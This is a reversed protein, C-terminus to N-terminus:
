GGPPPDVPPDVPPPACVSYTRTSAALVSYDGTFTVSYTVTGDGNDTVVAAALNRSVIVDGPVPATVCAASPYSVRVINPASGASPTLGVTDGCYNANFSLCNRVQPQPAQDASLAFSQSWGSGNTYWTTFGAPAAPSPPTVLDYVDVDGQQTPTTAIAYTLTGGPAGTAGWTIVEQPASLAAGFGAAGCVAVKYQQYQTLGGIVNTTSTVVGAGVLKAEGAPTMTCSPTGSLWAGWVQSVPKASFNANLVAGTLTAQEASATATGAADYRPRGAVQVATSLQEGDSGGTTPPQFRSVPVLQVTRPGVDLQIGFVTTAGSRAVYQGTNLVRFGATDAASAVSVEVAGKVDSTISADFVPTATLGSAVPPQYAWTTVATTDLSEGVANVARATYSHKEGNVLGQIVCGFGVAGRTCDAAVPTGNELITVGTVAPHAQAANGLTVLLRVSSATYSQTTISAPTQPYGLVDLTLQGQGTRGQADTVTFAVVCEGGVPKPGSPWSATLHTASAKTVTTVPCVVSGSSGVSAITLGSGPKGAFPDYEGALGVAPILCSAGKSVDCTFGFSAGRPADPAAIGVVLTITSTLGGYSSVELRVTERTGPRADARAEVTLAGGVSTVLFASGAYSAAFDLVSVDGVRGGEWGVTERILDITQTEGPPVTRSIPSLIAQPDKPLIAFPVAVVSWRKQGALRVAVSCSDSWPAERGASYSVRDGGSAACSANARQVALADGKRVEIRDAADLDLLEGVAVEVTKEEGVEVPDLGPRLQVRLDDFAPVRLFGYSTVANGAADTGTLAFPVIAGDTPVQGSIRRGDVVFGPTEGWLSLELAGVDGTAWQVRGTVVDIGSALDHRTQATVITDAVVPQDPAPTDSVGVVILGEATSFTASSQVTYVYSHTGAVDGPRLVVTGDPLSTAADDLLAALREYDASGAPANPEIDIITLEGQKPDRDNRLPSVTVPSTSGLQAAVYDSYTVPAVDSLEGSLVGIRVLGSAEEGAADRVSYAFAVQGGPVGGAPARYVITSGTADISAVGAGARPQEVDALVVADGDPDLGTSPVSVSVSQGALVRATLIPPQPARNSGPGLVTITVAAADLRRPDNELYSSYRVTYVGPTQPALYRVLDGSAFVLEGAAGSGEVEPHLQAREGRPSVDNALVPIDVQAGARVSIADPVAIPGTGHSPALLFVTLQTSATAGTGDTVQVEAVGIRGPLGDDTSGSVRVYSQGIVSASLGPGSSTVQSVMLVRGSTNQAAALVDVTADEGPRVFATLPPLALARDGEAVTFRIVATQRALTVTDQVTYSAVYRGPRDAALEITGTASSPAVTFGDSAGSVAVADALRYSGSGGVVSDAVSLQRKEGAGAALAVPSARLAPSATVRVELPLTATAGFTDSVTVTIPIVADGANPDQHRVVVRGDATPVVTVPANPDDPRADALSVTDGEPDVWGALVPISVFGGPAIQPTPWEQLCGEVGCWVPATNQEEPVVTLTVTVPASSATGDTVAYSFTASGSAASVRAVIAQDDAVLGLQGFSADSLATLSAPDITLVDKKNPDHDNLLVPLSVLAGRRVGFADPEAVPPEQEIVDDVDVTGEEQVSDDLATWEEVPVLRGDPVTWIMGTSNEVLVARDGNSRFVPEITRANELEDGDLTLAVVADGASSWLTGSAAQLWAAYAVGGVVIPAAPNGSGEALTTVAGDSTAVAVLADSDALLVRPEDSAGSQLRADAGRGTQVPASLGEIWLLGEAADSLVWHGGALVLELQADDDPPEPVPAVDGSFRGSAADYSRVARELASYMVVRGTDDLAAATAVYRPPEAGPAAEADAFPNLQAPSELAGDAAFGGLHLEGTSTLYLIRDGAATIARTGAPTAAGASGATQDDDPAGLDLPSAADIPWAQGFGQTFVVGAAGAQVVGSPDSVARVTDLEALDTNVRGYQGDARTVWVATELRPVEQADYGQAVVALTTVTGVVAIGAAIRTAFGWSRRRPEARDAM